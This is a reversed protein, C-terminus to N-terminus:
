CIQSPSETETSETDVRLLLSVREFEGFVQDNKTIGKSNQWNEKDSEVKLSKLTLEAPKKRVQRAIQANKCNAAPETTTNQKKCQIPRPQTAQNAPVSISKAQLIQLTEFQQRNTAASGSEEM